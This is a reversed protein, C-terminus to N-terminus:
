AGQSALLARLNEHTAVLSDISCWERAQHAQATQGPGFNVAPIGRIGYRGALVPDADVDLKALVFRGEYEEALGELIPGLVLCPQCWGAWFDVVVPVEHSADLVREQFDSEGVQIVSV